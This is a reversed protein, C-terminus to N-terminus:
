ESWVGFRMRAVSAIAVKRESPRSCCRVGCREFPTREIISRMRLSAAAAAQTPTSRRSAAGRKGGQGALGPRFTKLYHAIAALDDEPVQALNRVVAAM